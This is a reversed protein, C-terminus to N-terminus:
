LLFPYTRAPTQIQTCSSRFTSSSFSHLLSLYLSFSLDRTKRDTERRAPWKLTTFRMHHSQHSHLETKVKRKEKKQKKNQSKKNAMKEKGVIPCESTTPLQGQSNHCPSNYSLRPSINTFLQIIIQITSFLIYM